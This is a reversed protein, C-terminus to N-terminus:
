DEVYDWKATAVMCQEPSGCKCSEIRYWMICVELELHRSMPPNYCDISVCVARETRFLVSCGERCFYLAAKKPLGGVRCYFGRVGDLSDPTGQLLIMRCTWLEVLM